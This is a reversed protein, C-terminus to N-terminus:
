VGIVTRPVARGEQGFCSTATGDFSQILAHKVDAHGGFVSLWVSFFGYARAVELVLQLAEETRNLGEYKALCSEAIRWTSERQQWRRDRGTPSPFGRCVHRDLGVLDILATARLALEASLAGSAGVLGWREYAIALFTNHEDPWLTADNALDTTGKVSNCNSCSLLFNGWDLERQPYISKPAKHEVALGSPLRRECYSCYM